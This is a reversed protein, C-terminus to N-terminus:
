GELFADNVAYHIVAACRQAASPEAGDHGQRWVRIADKALDVELVYSLGREEWWSSDDQRAPAVVAEIDPTLDDKSHVRAWIMLEDNYSDLRQVVQRLTM